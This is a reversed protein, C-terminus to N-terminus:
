SAQSVSPIGNEVILKAFQEGDVLEIRIGTDEYYQAAAQTAEASFAGTTVVMGLNASEAEIGRILQEIVETGVPPDPKWHKAQVAVVQQFAGAVLFTAVVDAGKDQIRPVLRVDTAGLSRLVSQILREFGFDDIRGHHMEHLVQAILRAQLDTQFTPAHGREALSLCDEIEAILDSADASTGQVKMRSILAARALRRPIAKKGNLWKASRRYATDEKVKSPDYTAPGTIEAVYFEGWNPVVVYDGTQMARIFRWM